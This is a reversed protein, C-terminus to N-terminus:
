PSVPAPDPLLVGDDQRAPNLSKGRAACKPCITRSMIAALKNMEMPLYAAPWVHQCRSCRCWFPKDGAGSM